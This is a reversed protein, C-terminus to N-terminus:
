FGEEIGTLLNNKITSLKSYNNEIIIIDANIKKVDFIIKKLKSKIDNSEVNIYISELLKEIEFLSDKKSEFNNNELTTKSNNQLM